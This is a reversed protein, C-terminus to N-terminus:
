YYNTAYFSALHIYYRNGLGYILSLPEHSRLIFCIMMPIVNFTPLYFDMYIYCLMKRIYVFIIIVIHPNHAM